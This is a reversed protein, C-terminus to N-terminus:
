APNAGGGTGEGVTVATPSISVNGGSGTGYISTESIFWGGIKGENATITGTIDADTSTLKGNTGISTDGADIKGTNYLTTNGGSISSPGIAWGGITGDDAYIYDAYIDGTLNVNTAYVTGGSTVGFSDGMKLVINSITKEEESGFQFDM